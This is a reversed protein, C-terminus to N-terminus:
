TTILELFQERLDNRVVILGTDPKLHNFDNGERSFLSTDDIGHVFGAAGAIDWPKVRWVRIYGDYGWSATQCAQLAVSGYMQTLRVGSNQKLKTRMDEVEQWRGSLLVRIQWNYNERMLPWPKQDLYVQSDEWWEYLIDKMFDYVVGHVIEGDLEVWISITTNFERNIFSETGDLPDIIFRINSSSPTDPFEEWLIGVDGFTNTIMERAHTEILRDIHTVLETADKMEVSLPSFMEQKVIDWLKYVIVKLESFDPTDAQNLNNM